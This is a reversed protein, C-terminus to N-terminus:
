SLVKQVKQQQQKREISSSKGFRTQNPNTLYMWANSTVFNFISSHCICRILWPFFVLIFCLLYGEEAYERLFFLLIWDTSKNRPQWENHHWFDFSKTPVQGKTSACQTAWPTRRKVPSLNIFLYLYEWIVHVDFFFQCHSWYIIFYFPNALHVCYQGFYHMFIDYWAFWNRHSLFRNEM